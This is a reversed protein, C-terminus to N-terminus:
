RARWLAVCQNAAQDCGCEQPCKAGCAAAVKATRYDGRRLATLAAANGSAVAACHADAVDGVVQADPMYAPTQPDKNSVGAAIFAPTLDQKTGFGLSLYAIVYNTLLPSPNASVGGWKVGDAQILKFVQAYAPFGGFQTFFDDFMKVHSDFGGKGPVGFRGHQINAAAVLTADGLRMGSALMVQYDMSNPFPSRHDAWWDTPWGGTVLGTWVNIMEHLTLLYGWFGAVGQLDNYYADGTVGVGQGFSSGTHAGGSPQEVQITFPLGKPTVAFLSTLEDIVSDGYAFFKQVEAAHASWIMPHVCWRTKASRYREIYLVGGAM